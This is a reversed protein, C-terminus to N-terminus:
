RRAWDDRLIAAWRRNGMPSLHLGDRTEEVRLAGLGNDFAAHLDIVDLGRDSALQTIALNTARVENPHDERPLITQIIVLTEPSATALEDLVMTLQDVTWEPPHDDRIDNTGTLLYVARPQAAGVERAIDVLQATTFGSYGRNVIPSEALAEDWPGQETISDGLM